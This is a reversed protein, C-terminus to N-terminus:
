FNNRKLDVGCVEGAFHQVMFAGETNRRASRIKPIHYFSSPGIHKKEKVGSHENDFKKLLDQDGGGRAGRRYVDDM